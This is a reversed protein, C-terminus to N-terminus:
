SCIHYEIFLTLFVQQPSESIIRYSVRFHPPLYNYTLIYEKGREGSLLVISIHRQQGAM